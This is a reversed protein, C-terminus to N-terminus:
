AFGIGLERVANYSEIKRQRRDIDRQVQYSPLRGAQPIVQAGLSAREQVPPPMVLFSDTARLRYYGPAWWNPKLWGLRDDENMDLWEKVNVIRPKKLWTTQACAGGPNVSSSAVRGNKAVQPATRFVKISIDPIITNDPFHFAMNKIGAQADRTGSSSFAARFFSKKTKVDPHLTHCTTYDTTSINFSSWEETTALELLFEFYTAPTRPPARKLEPAGYISLTESFGPPPASNSGTSSLGSIPNQLPDRASVCVFVLTALLTVTLMDAGFLM